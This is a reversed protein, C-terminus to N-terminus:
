YLYDMQRMKGSETAEDITKAYVVKSWESAEQEGITRVKM